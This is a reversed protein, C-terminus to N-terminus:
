NKWQSHQCSEVGGKQEKMQKLRTTVGQIVQDINRDQQFWDHVDKPLIMGREKGDELTYLVADYAGTQNYLHIPYDRHNTLKAELFSWFEAITGIGGDLFLAMDSEEYCRKTRDIATDEIMVNAGMMEYEKKENERTADLIITVEKQYERFIQYCAALLGSSAGGIVLHVDPIVALSKMVQLASQYTEITLHNSSGCGIFLNM